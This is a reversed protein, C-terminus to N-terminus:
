RSREAQLVVRYSSAVRNFRGIPLRRDTPVIPVAICRGNNDRGILIYPATRRKRNVKAIIPNGLLEYIQQRRIGHMWFKSEARESIRLERVTIRAM